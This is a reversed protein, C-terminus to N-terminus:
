GDATRLVQAARWVYITASVITLLATASGTIAVFWWVWEASNGPYFLVGGCYNAQAVFKGKGSWGASFSHGQGEIFGRLGSVLFERGVIVLVLWAPVLASTEPYKMTLILVGCILMKDAVPDVIRGFATVQGWRRALYGDIWDTAATVTYLTFAIFWHSGAGDGGIHELYGFLVIALCLRASTIQNPVNM